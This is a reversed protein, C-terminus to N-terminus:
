EVGKKRCTLRKKAAVRRPPVAPPLTPTPYLLPALLSRWLADYAPTRECPIVVVHLDVPALHQTRRTRRQLQTSMQASM